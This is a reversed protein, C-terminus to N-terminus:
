TIRGDGPKIQALPLGAQYYGNIVNSEFRFRMQRRQDKLFVLQESTTTVAENDVFTHVRSTVTPARANAQGIVQVTMDGEQVFDPEIYAVSTASNSPPQSTAFTINATEYFSRIPREDFGDVENVGVEHVWFKYPTQYTMDFTAGSGTGGTVAVPDSPPTVYSGAQTITVATIVGTSVTDVTIQTAVPGDGGVITLVDGVTYGTGGASVDADTAAFPQPEVGSMMPRRFVSPFTGAARGGNPLPTDYWTRLRVNYIVAHNPEESDGKPFCWWIEGFRPVKFAFTKQRQTFNISNFFFDSNLPNPVEQVVGNFSLFRDAGVWYYIGDYEIVSAASMISSETSLTTFQWTVTDGVYNMQLLSDLSWILGAPGSGGRLPLVRVIKQQTINAGGSGSALFDAPNGPVSWNIRGNSGFILAYPHLVAVGGTLSYDGPLPLDTPDVAVLPGTGFLPATFLEGGESNGIFELNPAVQGILTATTGDNLVDFQWINNPDATFDATPTRDTIVSSNLGNDIFFREVLNASGAHVYTQADQTYVYLTRAVGLLYKNISRRGLMKRPKPAFRVHEGDSYFDGELITGDRKIGPNSLIPVPITTDGADAM